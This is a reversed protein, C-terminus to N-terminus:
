MEEKMKQYEAATFRKPVELGVKILRDEGMFPLLINAIRRHRDIKKIYKEKGQLPGKEVVVQGDVIYGLSCRICYDSDLMESLFAQEGQQIHSFEGGVIVPTVTDPIHDVHRKM